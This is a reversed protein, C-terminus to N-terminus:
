FNVVLIQVFVCFYESVVTPFDTGCFRDSNVPTGNVYSPNPIVVFDSNCDSGTLSVMGLAGLDGSVIFCNDCAASWEISCYGPIMAVCVGYNENVLERTGPLGTTPDIENGSTGYNFSNVTGSLATYYMLCGIPARTPCDCAIQTILFNWNRGINEASSTTVTLQITNNGNFDVYVHQGTNEGCIVPVPGAGGTITLADTDCM